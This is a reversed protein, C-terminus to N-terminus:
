LASPTHALDLSIQQECKAAVLPDRTGIIVTWPLDPSLIVDTLETMSSTDMGDFIDDLLLLRPQLALARALLLRTRQRSSLTLGGTVLQTQAGAPLSLLEDALGVAKLVRQVTDLGVEPRGLRINEAITGNVIDQSRILMVHSRLQELYWSRVDLGNININGSTPYRLALILDLLTSCGSGQAGMLAARGGVPVTFSVDSLIERGGPYAFSIKEVAVEIGGAVVLPFDGDEPEIELDVLHGLKDVAALMDYWAEFKKALKSLSVVISSVILESAV